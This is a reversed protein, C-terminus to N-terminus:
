SLTLARFALDGDISSRGIHLYGGRITSDTASVSGPADTRKWTIGTPTVTLELGIWDGAVPAPTTVAAALPVGVTSGQLHRYLELRGDARLIAHYGTSTGLQHQYYTDDQHGFALTLNDATDAPLTKWTAQLAVSYTGAANRVPSLQGLTLFHQGGQYGLHLEDDVWTPAYTATSPDLTMEGPAIAGFAWTDSTASPVATSVYHLSSGVVGQCGLAFYRAAESRRHVPFVWVPIGTAVAQRVLALHQPDTGAAPLVVCDRTRDLRGTLAAIRASTVEATSGFYAFVPFGATKAEAIRLSDWTAKVIVSSELGFTAVASMLAPYATDDKAELCLVLRGAFTRLVDDLLPVQPAPVTAWAPGLQPNSLRIGRLVTSPLVAVAGKATTTRDYTPDHLCVLLGDATMGVSIEMCQAGSAVTAAYGEMSHEPYVDGSGRHGIYYRSGRSAVWGAVTAIKSSPTSVVADEGHNIAVGAGVGIGIAGVGIAGIAARRSFASPAM